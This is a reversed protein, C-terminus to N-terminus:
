SSRERMTSIVGRLLRDLPQYMDEALSVDIDLQLAVEVTLFLMAVTRGNANCARQIQRHQCCASHVVRRLILAFNEIDEGADAM